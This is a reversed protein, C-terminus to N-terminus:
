LEEEAESVPAMPPSLWGGGADIVVKHAHGEAPPFSRVYVRPSRRELAHAKGDLIHWLQYAAPVDRDLRVEITGPGAKDLLVEAVRVPPRADRGPVDVTATCPDGDPAEFVSKARLRLSAGGFGQPFLFLDFAVRDAYEGSMKLTEVSGVVVVPVHRDEVRGDPSEATFTVAQLLHEVKKDASLRDIDRFDVRVRARLTSLGDADPPGASVGTLAPRPGPPHACAAM